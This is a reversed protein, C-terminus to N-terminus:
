DSVRTLDLDVSALPSNRFYYGLGEREALLSRYDRSSLVVATEVGCTTIVQPGKSQADVILESFRNKAETLQWVDSM